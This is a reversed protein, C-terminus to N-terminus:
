VRYENVGEVEKEEEDVEEVEGKEEERYYYFQM